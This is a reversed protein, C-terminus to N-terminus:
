QKAAAKADAKAAAYDAEAQAKCTKLDEGRLAECKEVAVKHNGDATALLVDSAAKAAASDLAVTKDDVKEAAKEVQKTAKQEAQAQERAAVEEAAAVNKAEAEPSKSDSCGALLPVVLAAAAFWPTLKM